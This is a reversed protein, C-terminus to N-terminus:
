TGTKAQPNTDAWSGDALQEQKLFRMGDRIAREVDERTVAGQTSSVSTSIVLLGAIAAAAPAPLSPPRLMVVVERVPSGLKHFHRTSSSTQPSKSPLSTPM